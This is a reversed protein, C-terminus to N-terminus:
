ARAIDGVHSLLTHILLPAIVFRILAYRVTSLLVVVQSSVSPVCSNLTSMMLVGAVNLLKPFGNCAVDGNGICATWRVVWTARGTSKHCTTPCSFCSVVVHAVVHSVALREQHEEQAGGM